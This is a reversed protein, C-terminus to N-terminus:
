IALSPLYLIYKSARYHRWIVFSGSQYGHRICPHGNYGGPGSAARKLIKAAGANRAGPGRGKVYYITPTTQISFMYTCTATSEQEEQKQTGVLDISRKTIRADSEISELWLEPLYGDSPHQEDEPELPKAPRRRREELDLAM